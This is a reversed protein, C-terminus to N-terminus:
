RHRFIALPGWRMRLPPAQGARAAAPRPDHRPCRRQPDRVSRAALAAM